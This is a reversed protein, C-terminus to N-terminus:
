CVTELEIKTFEALIDFFNPFSTNVSEVDEIKMGVLLGAIAFSM